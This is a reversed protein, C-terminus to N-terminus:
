LVIGLKGMAAPSCSGNYARISVYCTPSPTLGIFAVSTCFGGPVGASLPESNTGLPRREHNAAVDSPEDITHSAGHIM